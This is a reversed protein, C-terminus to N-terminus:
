RRSRWPDAVHAVLVRARRIRQEASGERRGRNRRHHDLHHRQGQMRFQDTQRRRRRGALLAAGVGSQDILVQPATSTTRRLSGAACCRFEWHASTIRRPWMTARTRHFRQSQATQRRHDMLLFPPQREAWYDPLVKFWDNPATKKNNPFGAPQDCVNSETECIILRGRLHRNRQRCRGQM